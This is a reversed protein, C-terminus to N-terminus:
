NLGMFILLFLLCAFLSLSTIPFSAPSATAAMTVLTTVSTSKFNYFFILLSFLDGGVTMCENRCILHTIGPITGMWM